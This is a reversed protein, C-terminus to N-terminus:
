PASFSTALSCEDGAVIEGDEVRWTTSTDGQWGVLSAGDFLSVPEAHAAVLPALFVALLAFAAAAPANM